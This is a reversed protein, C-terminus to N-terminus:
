SWRGSTPIEPNTTTLISIANWSVRCHDWLLRKCFFMTQPGRAPKMENHYVAFDAFISSTQIRSGMCVLM